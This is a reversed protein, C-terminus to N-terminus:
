NLPAEVDFLSGQGVTLTPLARAERDIEVVQVRLEATIVGSAKDREMEVHATLRIKRNSDETLAGAAQAVHHDLKSAICSSVREAYELILHGAAPKDIHM